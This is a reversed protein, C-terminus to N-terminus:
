PLVHRPSLRRTTVDWDHIQPDLIKEITPTVLPNIQIPYNQNLRKM